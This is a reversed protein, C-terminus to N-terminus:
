RDTQQAGPPSGRPQAGRPKPRRSTIVLLLMSALVIATGVWGSIGQRENLLVVSLAIGFIPVLLTWTVTYFHVLFAGISLSTLGASLAIALTRGRSYRKGESWIRVYHAAFGILGTAAVAKLDRAATDQGTLPM